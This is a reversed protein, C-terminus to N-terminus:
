PQSEKCCAAASFLKHLAHSPLSAAPQQANCRSRVWTVRLTQRQAQDPHLYKEIVLALWPAVWQPCTCGAACHQGRPGGRQKCRLPASVQAAKFHLVTPM